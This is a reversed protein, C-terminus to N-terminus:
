GLTLPKTGPGDVDHGPMATQLVADSREGIDRGDVGQKSWSPLRPHGACPRAHRRGLVHPVKKLLPSQIASAFATQRGHSSSEVDCPLSKMRIEDPIRAASIASVAKVPRDDAARASLPATLIVTILAPQIM